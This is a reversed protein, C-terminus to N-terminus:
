DSCLWCDEKLYKAVDKEIALNYFTDTESLLSTLTLVQWFYKVKVGLCIM